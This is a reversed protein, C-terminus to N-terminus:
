AGRSRTLQFPVQRGLLRGPQTVSWTLTHTSIGAAECAECDAITVSWTLTHTSISFTSLKFEINLTVSWTLTHTSIKGKSLLNSALTDREVHAHSNFNSIDRSCIVAYRDREVHAHSNFNKLINNKLIM